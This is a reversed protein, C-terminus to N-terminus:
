RPLRKAAHKRRLLRQLNIAAIAAGAARFRKAMAARTRVEAAWAAPIYVARPRGEIIVSLQFARHLHVGDACRCNPKGCPRRVEVFSGPLMERWASLSRVLQGRRHLEPDGARRMGMVAGDEDM